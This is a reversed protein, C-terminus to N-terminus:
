DEFYFTYPLFVSGFICQRECLALVRVLLFMIQQENVVSCFVVVFVFFVFFLFLM